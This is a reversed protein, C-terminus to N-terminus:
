GSLATQVLALDVNFGGDRIFSLPKKEDINPM